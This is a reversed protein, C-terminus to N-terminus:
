VAEPRQDAIGIGPGKDHVFFAHKDPAGVPQWNIIQETKGFFAVAEEQILHDAPLVLMLADPGLRDALFHAALAIAPATNRGVPELLFPHDHDDGALDEYLDRTYFYYDRSTM